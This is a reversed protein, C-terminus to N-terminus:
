KKMEHQKACVGHYVGIAHALKSLYVFPAYAIVEMHRPLWHGIVFGTHLISLPIIMLAAGLPRQPFLWSYETGSEKTRIWAAKTGYNYHHKLFKKLTQRDHHAMRIRPAFAISYGARHIRQCYEVDELYRLSENFYGVKEIVERAFSLNTSSIQYRDDQPKKEPYYEYWTSFHDCM